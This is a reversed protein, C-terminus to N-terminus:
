WRAGTSANGARIREASTDVSITIRGERVLLSSQRLFPLSSLPLGIYVSVGPNSCLLRLSVALALVIAFRPALRSPPPAQM